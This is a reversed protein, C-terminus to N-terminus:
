NGAYAKGLYSHLKTKYGKYKHSGFCISKLRPIDYAGDAPQDMLFECKGGEMKRHMAVMSIADRTPQMGVFGM